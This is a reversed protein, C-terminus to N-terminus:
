AEQVWCVGGRGDPATLRLVTPGAGRFPPCIGQVSFPRACGGGAPTELLAWGTGDVRQCVPRGPTKRCVPNGRVFRPGKLAKQKGLLKQSLGNKAEQSSEQSSQVRFQTYNPKMQHHM